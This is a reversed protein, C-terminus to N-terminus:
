SAGLLLQDNFMKAATRAITSKGTGAMGRLWFICNDDGGNGWKQIEYLIRKRTDKHCYPPPPMEKKYTDFAAYQAEPLERILADQTLRKIDEHAEMTKSLILDTAKQLGSIKYEISASTNQDLMELDLMISQETKQMNGYM